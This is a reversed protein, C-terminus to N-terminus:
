AAGITVIGRTEYVSEFIEVNLAGATLADNRAEWSLAAAPVSDIKNPSGPRDKEVTWLTGGDDRYGTEHKVANGVHLSFLGCLLESEACHSLEGSRQAEAWARLAYAMAKPRGTAWEVVRDKGFQGAWKAIWSEIFPPDLYARWVDFDEFASAMALDVQDMPVERGPGGPTWIGLPWQYGSAVETGILSFHDWLRSGDGGITILARKPVVKPRKVRLGNWIEVSFAHGAGSVLRNGFFREAQAPDRAVLDAAEAEIADPDVHGGNARRVDPPYVAQHIKHRERKDTYSLNAPPRVFQRYVDAASSEFQLQAVSREAPDWANTNLSARGGMKALNRYQTDALKIMGTRATWIGVEGQAVHTTPQGLRSPANSTVTDIRGGGPLRIFDEGTKPILDHLPGNDIMPRLADYTNGTSEESFGTIQILPTAWAMGMPEGPDYAYEWGCRCGHDRCAYGDETGAWGAFLAPGVGELCIQAATLPDKGIGQPGVLMGRRYVFAPGFIPNDPVWRAHGRVLYFAALYMLQFDYLNFPAGARIGAPVVCHAEIWSPAVTMTQPERAAV